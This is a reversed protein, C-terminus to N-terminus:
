GFSVARATCVYGATVAKWNKMRKARYKVKSNCPNRPLNHGYIM